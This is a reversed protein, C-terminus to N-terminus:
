GYYGGNKPCDVLSQSAVIVAPFVNMRRCRTELANVAIGLTNGSFAASDALAV